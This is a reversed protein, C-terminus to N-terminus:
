STDYLFLCWDNDVEHLYVGNVRNNGKIRNLRTLDLSDYLGHSQSVRFSKPWYAIGKIYGSKDACYFMIQHDSWVEIVSVGLKSVHRELEQQETSALSAGGRYTSRQVNVQELGPHAEIIRVTALFESRRAAFDDQLAQDSPLAADGPHFWAYSAGFVVLMGTACIGLTIKGIRKM